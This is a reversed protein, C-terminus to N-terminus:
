AVHESKLEIIRELLKLNAESEHYKRKVLRKKLEMTLEGVAEKLKRNEKELREKQKDIGGRKFLKEDDSFLKDRWKYYMGKTIGYENCIEAITYKGSIGLIV